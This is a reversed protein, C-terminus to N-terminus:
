SSADIKPIISYRKEKNELMVTFRKTNEVDESLSKLTKKSCAWVHRVGNVIIPVLFRTGYQTEIQKIKENTDIELEVPKKDEFKFFDEGDFTSKTAEEFETSNWNFEKINNETM